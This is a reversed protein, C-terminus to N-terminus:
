QQKMIRIQTTKENRKSIFTLTKEYQSRVGQTKELQEAYALSNKNISPKFSPNFAEPDKARAKEDL